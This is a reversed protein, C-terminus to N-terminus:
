APKPNQRSNTKLRATHHKLPAIRVPSRAAPAQLIERESRGYLKAARIFAKTTASTDASRHAIGVIFPPPPPSLPRIKLRPGALCEFGKQVLAVGRGAEVSAILSTSSEHEEAINPQCDARNFLDALWEHYEPYDALRYTILRELAIKQLNVQRSRSLPHSPHMALCVPYERLKEFVLGNMAKTSSQIMLALDLSQDRLGRLM